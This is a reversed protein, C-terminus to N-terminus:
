DQLSIKFAFAHELPVEEPVSIELGEDTVEWNLKEEFGLLEVSRIEDPYIGVFDEDPFDNTTVSKILLKEKPWDLCIAYLSNEKVTFRIDQASYEVNSENGYTADSLLKTPGESAITWPRTKYIAEGNIDLWKGLGLLLEKVEDPITGDAKPGVNLLLFGNKSVRDVLNDVLRNLSKYTIGNVYSWAEGDDTSTDTLWPFETKERMQAVELDMVGIGPPIDNDKYTIVVEKNNAIAHNFYYALMKKRYSERIAGFGTDFWIMDPSYNDFVEILKGYWEDLYEITPEDGDEHIPGYLDSYQPDGCDYRKDWTPFFWWNTEHHFTTVFKMGRSKIARELEQVIDKKPGMKVSNYDNFKTDWLSFGDHHEAALGAWMAGSEAFLEAWEDPDFKEAKFMPIFDKYGFEELPGYTKEHHKRQPSNEDMYIYHAYWTGNPGTAPVSYVGWHVYIGFKGDLFWEPTQHQQLSSWEPKFKMKEPSRENCGTLLVAILATSILIIPNKM